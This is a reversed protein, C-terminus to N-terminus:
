HMVGLCESVTRAASVDGSCNMTGATTAKHTVTAFASNRMADHDGYLLGLNFSGTHRKHANDCVYSGNTLTDYLKRKGSGSCNMQSALNIYGDDEGNLKSSTASM